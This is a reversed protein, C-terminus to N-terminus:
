APRRFAITSSVLGLCEWQVKEQWANVEREVVVGPKWVHFDHFVLIGGPMIMQPWILIDKTIGGEGHDADIFCFAVPESILQAAAGSDMRILEAEVKYKALNMEVNQMLAINEWTDIGIIRGRGRRALGWCVLSGGRKVGIEIALGDPAQEALEYLYGLQSAEKRTVDYLMSKCAIGNEVATARDIM